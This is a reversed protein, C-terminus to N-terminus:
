PATPRRSSRRGDGADPSSERGGAPVLRQAAQDLAEQIEDFVRDIPQDGHIVVVNGQARYHEVLPETERRYLALRTRITEPTDDARNEERARGLLRAFCKEEPVELLLVIALPRGIGRLMRDLAEGQGITRPFGDLVFGDQVDDQGLRERIIEIMLDDPVLEGAEVIPRVRAGLDTGAGIAARLMDGTAVHAVGYSVAIREAQTGKGSGQPGLILINM